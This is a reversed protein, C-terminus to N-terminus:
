RKETGFVETFSSKPIDELKSDVGLNILEIGLKQCSVFAKTFATQMRETEPLHWKKGKGFYDANFHNVDDGVSTLVKGDQEIDEPIVYNLDVGILYIKSYGMFAALQINFYM